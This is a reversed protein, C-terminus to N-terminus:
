MTLWEKYLEFAAGNGSVTAEYTDIVENAVKAYFPSQKMIVGINAPASCTKTKGKYTMTYVPADLSINRPTGTYTPM